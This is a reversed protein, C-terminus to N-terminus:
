TLGWYSVQHLGKVQNELESKKVESDELEHTLAQM